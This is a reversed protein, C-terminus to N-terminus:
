EPVAVGDELRECARELCSGLRRALHEVGTTVYGTHTGPVLQVAVQEAVRRWAREVGQIGREGALFITIRGSFRRPVYGAIAEQYIADILARRAEVRGGRAPPAPEAPMEAPAAAGGQGRRGPVADLRRRLAAVQGVPGLRCFRLLRRTWGGLALLRARWRVFAKQAEEPGLGSARSLGDTVARLLRMGRGTNSANPDLMGLFAVAEGEAVLRRAMELAVLGGSCYGGLFYPGTPRISRLTRLHDAAMGEITPPVADSGLGHPHLVYFPQESGLHRALNICYYGGGDWDGHLFFLPPRSGDPQIAKVRQDFAGATEGLVARALSAVTAGELLVSPPLRVHCEREVAELMRAALLSHGGLEFFNDQIGIPGLDLVQEWIQVLQYELVSRPPQASARAPGEDPSPLRALGLREALGIRQLKGTPGKPIEEVVLVRAPVKFEALRAAAFDRIEREQASSPERLVVAAAVEEGLTPHPMSFTVAQAVAPHTLLVDDVERPSVKEGGRNIMEKIRGTIFLYGEADLYGEDGTRLWEGALAAANAAPNAEYGAMISPGRLAIEGRQDPGVAVGAADLVAVEPGAALGVSGPKRARPPLPNSAIQHAAETMGYAEVVPVGLERELEAAVAPPLPASSSRVFRLTGRGVSGPRRRVRALIAQHMTPVASYWTPRMEELWGFFRTADFVPPCGVSGGAALSALFVMLGHIHFLPMLDLCRDGPGLDLWRAISLASARLNAHTLPVIKPRSTTGSTHLVLAVADAGRRGVEADPKRACEMAFCGAGATPSRVLDVVGLGLREAVERAPSALGPDVVLARAGLDSLYFELEGERYAPNLPACTAVSAISLFAAALEPGQPAVLAVRDGPAIGMDSLAEAARDMQELLAAFTLPTAESGVLAVADPTSHALRSILQRVSV